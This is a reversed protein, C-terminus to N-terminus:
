QIIFQFGGAELWFDFMQSTLLPFSLFLHLLACRSIIFGGASISHLFTPAPRPRGMDTPSVCLVSASGASAQPTGGQIGSCPDQQDAPLPAPHAAPQTVSAM